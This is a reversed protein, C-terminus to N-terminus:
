PAPSTASASGPSVSASAKVAALFDVADLGVVSGSGSCFFSFLLFLGALFAMVLLTTVKAGSALMVNPSSIGSSPLRMDNAEHGHLRGDRWSWASALGSCRLCHGGKRMMPLHSLSISFIQSLTSWPSDLSASQILSAIESDSFASLLPLSVIPRM